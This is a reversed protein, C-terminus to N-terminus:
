RDRLPAGCMSSRTATSAGIRQRKQRCFIPSASHGRYRPTTTTCSRCLNVAGARKAIKLEFTVVIVVENPPVIQVLHPNSESDGPRFNLERIGAWAETLGNLAREIIQAILRQEILTLPRQPIFLDRNNGGLLRDIIPYIILPSIELCMTGDMPSTDLTTFSTPNPLSAILEEYTM